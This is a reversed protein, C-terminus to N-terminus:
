RQTCSADGQHEEQHEKAGPVQGVGAAEVNETSAPIAAAQKRSAALRVIYEAVERKSMVPLAEVLGDRDFVRVINTDTGFGAGELSVNNAVLLDCNKRILKDLAYEDVKETEAAFGVLFQHKKIKGLTQLIDPNKVLDITLTEGTKKMKQPRQQAPRYDAVAAAKFVFDMTDYRAMVEQLMDEASIVTIREVGAPVPLATPGSILTVSAGLAQAAEALAYGMKGSSDNTIYRVPDIREVTGGATVIVRKGQLPADAKFFAAIRDFIEEPEALRGQGVYGCALQGTGPEVFRVGRERLKNMNDIVAPHTYMHVNMAPAVMVPATTALLTTSLMDDALGHAMKGIMNATAPAVVVLDARDALDIHSIVAADKEDFTDIAVPKRTLSQFTLPTIFQAASRTMIVRVDAGAQSLKSCLAAAKYAAIGGCVGVVVTKGTLM